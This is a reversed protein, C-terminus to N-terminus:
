LKMLKEIVRKSGQSVEILYTGAKLDNGIRTSQYPNVIIDKLKRGQMDLIRVQIKEMAPSIVQIAFDAVAPNPSLIVSMPLPAPINQQVPARSAIRPSTCAPLNVNVSRTNGNSCNNYGTATVTGTIAGLPYSVTIGTTGQGSIISASVPVTWTVSTANSPLSALSYTYVRNPCVSTATVTVAGPAGATLRSVSLSRAPGAGCDSEATVSVAGSVFGGSYSIMILTDNIGAANAHVATAGAPATWTYSTANVVKRISYAVPIAASSGSQMFPCVNTAGTMTGPTSPVLRLIALTRAPSAVCALAEVSINTGSVFSSSFTVNIITDNIGTGGPHATISAGTPVTWNYSNANSVPRISYVAVAPTGIFACANTPGSISGPTSAASVSIALSRDGSSACNSVSRVKIASSTFSSSFTVTVSTTGQGSVLTMNAPVTWAYAVANDVPDISYTVPTPTGIFSCADTPGNVAIPAAPSLKTINLSRPSRNGCNSNATVKINGTTFGPLYSVEISSTGQGSVITANGAVLWTYSTANAVADISYVANTPQGIFPCADTPGNIAIPIGPVIKLVELVSAGSTCASSATARVTFLSNTLAFNNDFTVQIANTGQGSVLTTGVPITWNYSGAGPVAAVSYTTATASGILPCVDTPGSIVGPTALVPNITLTVPTRNPSACTGNSAEAYYTAVGIGILAPTVPSGGTGATYWTVPDASTATAILTQMPDGNSCVTEDGGSVPATSSAQITLIVATRTASVCVGSSAEAYYTSTGVGVQIPSAVITGGSPADYWTITGGTATATITQEVDGNYCVTKDGGSTPAAITSPQSITVASNLAITCSTLAADRIQVNYIGAALNPFSGASQWNAGGNISYEYAGSGGSAGSITITGNSGSCTADTSSVIGALVAPQTVVITGSTVSCGGATTTVIVTYNGAALGSINQTTQGNSWAYTFPATGGTTTVSISGTTAGNCGVNTITPTNIVPATCSIAEAVQFNGFSTIGTATTSTATRAGNTTSFWSTGDYGKVVLNATNVGADIDNSGVPGIFNFTASYGIPAIGSNTLKWTRNVSKSADLGSSSINSEDGATTSATLTGANTIGSTFSVTAPTYNNADGIYFTRTPTGTLGSWAQNGVVYKSSTATTVTVGPALTIANVGTTIKGSTFTLANTSGNVSVNGALVVGAANNITLNNFAFGPINQSGASGNFSVSSGTNSYSTVGAAASFIGAIGITGTGALTITRAGNLTTTLNGYNQAAITQAANGRYDVTSSLGLTNTGFGGPFGSGGALQLFAGNAVEMIKTAAGAIAFGGNNFTGSQVRLNGTVNTVAVAAALTAGGASSNNMHLNNYGGAGFINVTQANVNDAYNVTSGLTGATLTAQSANTFAGKLNITGTGGGTSMDIVKFAPTTGAFSIGGFANLTGTTIVIKGIKATATSTGAFNIAGTVTSTSANINWANTLTNAAPQNITVDGNVQVTGGTQTLTNAATAAVDGLTIGDTTLTGSSVTVTAANAGAGLILGGTVTLSGGNINLAGGFSLCSAIATVTQGGTSFSGTSNYMPYFNDNIKLPGSATFTGTLLTVISLASAPNTGTRITKVGTGAMQVHSRATYNFIGDVLLSGNILLLKSSTDWNVSHTFTGNSAITLNGTFNYDTNTAEIIMHGQTVTVNTATFATSQSTVTNGTSGENIVLNSFGTGSSGNILQPSNGNFTVTGSGPTFTGGNKTWNGSVSINAGATFTGTTQLFNGSVNLTAPATMNGQTLTLANTNITTTSGGASLLIAATKNVVVNNFAQTASTGGITQAATGDFTVTGSGGTFTGGNNIWNGAILIAFNGPSVTLTTAAAITLAGGMNLLAGLSLTQGATLNENVNNIGSGSLETGTTKSNGTYNVNYIGAGQLTGTVTGESRNITSTSAMTLLNASAFTGGTLNVTGGTAITKAASLTVTNGPNNITVSGTLNTPLANGTTQNATGNYLYNGGVNFSRVLSQISGSANGAATIGVISGIGLTGGSNLIFNNGTSTGKIVFNGTNLTGGSEVTFLSPTGASGDINYDGSLSCISGSLIDFDIWKMITSGVSQITQSAGVMNFLGNETNGTTTVTGNTKSFNGTLNIVSNGNGSGFEVTGPTSLTFNGSVVFTRNQTVNNFTVNGSTALFNGAITMSGGMTATGSGSLTLNGYTEVPISFAGAPNFIVTSTANLTGLTPFTTNTITLTSGAAVDIAGTISGATSITLLFASTGDGVIIKSNTGSVIWGATTTASVANRFNFIQNNATFNTAPTGGIGNTATTWNSATNVAGSGKYYFDVAFVQTSFALSVVLLLLAANAAPIIGTKISFFKKFYNFSADPHSVTTEIQLTLSQM